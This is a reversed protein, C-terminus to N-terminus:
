GGHVRLSNSLSQTYTLLYPRHDEYKGKKIDTDGELDVPEDELLLSLPSPVWEFMVALIELTKLLAIRNTM